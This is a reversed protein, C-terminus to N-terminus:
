FLKRKKWKRSQKWKLKALKSRLTGRPLGLLEAAKTINDGSEDLAWSLIESEKETMFVEYDPYRLPGDNTDDVKGSRSAHPNAATKALKSSITLDSTAIMREVTNELQRVNGPWDYEMLDDYFGSNLKGILHGANHKKFFHNVLEPIDEKRERFPAAISAIEFFLFRWWANDIVYLGLVKYVEWANAWRAWEKSQFASKKAFFDGIDGGPIGFM